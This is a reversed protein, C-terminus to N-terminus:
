SDLRLRYLAKLGETPTMAGTAVARRITDVEDSETEEMMGLHLHGEHEDQARGQHRWSSGQGWMSDLTQFLGHARSRNHFSGGSPASIAGGTRYSGAIADAAQNMADRYSESKIRERAEADLEREEGKARRLRAM